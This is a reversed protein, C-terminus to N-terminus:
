VRIFTSFLMIFWLIRCDWLPQELAYAIACWADSSSLKDMEVLRAVLGDRSAGLFHMFLDIKGGVLRSPRPQFPCTKKKQMHMALCISSMCHM